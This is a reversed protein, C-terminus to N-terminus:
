ISIRRATPWRRGSGHERVKRVGVAPQWGLRRSVALGSAIVAPRVARLDVSGSAVVVSLAAVVEGEANLVRTAVLGPGILADKM